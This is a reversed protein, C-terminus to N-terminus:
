RVATCIYSGISLYLCVAIGMRILWCVCYCAVAFFIRVVVYMERRISARPAAVAKGVPLPVSM